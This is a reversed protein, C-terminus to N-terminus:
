RIVNYIKPTHIKDTNHNFCVCTQEDVQSMIVQKDCMSLTNENAKSIGNELHSSYAVIYDFQCTLTNNMTKKTERHEKSM